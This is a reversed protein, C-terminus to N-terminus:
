KSYNSVMTLIMVIRMYYSVQDRKPVVRISDPLLTPWTPISPLLSVPISRTARAEKCRRLRSKSTTTIWWIRILGRCLM